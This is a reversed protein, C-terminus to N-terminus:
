KRRYLRYSFAGVSLPKGDIFARGIRLYEQFGKREVVEVMCCMSRLPHVYQWDDPDDILCALFNTHHQM